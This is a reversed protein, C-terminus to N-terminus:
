KEADLQKATKMDRASKQNEGLARYALARNRYALSYNKRLSIAASCDDVAKQYERISHYSVGRTIYWTAKKPDLRIARSSYEITRSHDPLHAYAHALAYYVSASKAGLDIAQQYDKIASQFDERSVAQKGRLLFAEINEQRIQDDSKKETVINTPIPVRNTNILQPGGLNAPNIDIEEAKKKKTSTNDVVTPIHVPIQAIVPEPHAIIKDTTSSVTDVPKKEQTTLDDKPQPAIVPAIPKMVTHSKKHSSDTKKIQKASSDIDGNTKDAPTQSGSNDVIQEGQLPSNVIGANQYMEWLYFSVLIVTSILVARRFPSYRKTPSNHSSTNTMM